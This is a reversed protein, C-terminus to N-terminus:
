QKKYGGLYVSGMENDELLEKSSGKLVIKGDVLVYGRGAVRLAAHANQEVLLASIGKEPFGKITNLIEKVLIPALGM